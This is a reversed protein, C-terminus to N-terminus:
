VDFVQGVFLVIGTNNDRIIFVFPRNIKVELPPIWIHPVGVIGVAASAEAGVETVKFVAKHIAESVRVNRDGTIGSLDASSEFATNLGLQRLPHKLDYSTELNFKPVRLKLQRKDSNYLVKLRENLSLSVLNEITNNFGNTNNPFIIIMSINSEHIFPLEILSANLQQDFTYRFKTEQRMFPVKATKNIGYFDDDITSYENFPKDWVASFYLANTIVFRTDNALTDFLKNIKGNTQESIWDNINNTINDANQTFDVSDVSANFTDRMVSNYSKTLNYINSILVRNALRIVSDNSNKSNILHLTSKINENMPQLTENTHINFLAKLETETRGNAGNLLMYLSHTISLPSFFHNQNLPLVNLLNFAFRNNQQTFESTDTSHILTPISTLIVAILPLM